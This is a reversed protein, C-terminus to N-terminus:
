IADDCVEFEVPCYESGFDDGFMHFPEGDAIRWPRVMTIYGHYWIATKVRM